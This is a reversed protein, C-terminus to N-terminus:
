FKAYVPVDPQKENKVLELAAVEKDILTGMRTAVKDSIKKLLEDDFKGLRKPMHIGVVTKLNNLMKVNLDNKLAVIEDQVGVIDKPMPRDPMFQTRCHPYSLATRVAYSRDEIYSTGRLAAFAKKSAAPVEEMKMARAATIVKSGIATYVKKLSEGVRDVASNSFEDKIYQIGSDRYPTNLPPLESVIKSLPVYTTAAVNGMGGGYCNQIVPYKNGTKERLFSVFRDCTGADYAPYMRELMLQPKKNQVVFRVVCRRIMKTGYEGHKAGSTIYIIGTSPDVMSGVVHADNSNGAGWSQCSQIGRMSMTAIDWLGEVGDSSFCLKYKVSPVNKSSFDKFAYLNEVKEMALFKGDRLQENMKNYASILREGSKFVVKKEPDLIDDPLNLTIKGNKANICKAPQKALKTKLANLLHQNNGIKAKRKPKIKDAKKDAFKVLGNYRKTIQQNIETILHKASEKVDASNDIDIEVETNPLGIEPFVKAIEHHKKFVAHDKIWAPFKHTTFLEKIDAAM